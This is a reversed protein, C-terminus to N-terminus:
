KSLHLEVLDDAIKGFAEILEVSNEADIYNSPNSACEELMIKTNLDTVEFAVTYIKIDKSKIETCLEETYLNALDTDSWGHYPNTTTQSETSITNDGDTMLVLAKVGLETSIETYSKAESFPAIDSLLRYGWILGSPIYTNSRTVMADIATEITSVTDTLPTIVTPCDPGYPPAWNLLGRVPSAHYDRDEINLPYARSGVCGQWTLDQTEDSCDNVTSVGEPCVWKTCEYPGNEYSDCTTTELFCGLAESAPEDVYCVTKIETDDAPVDLWSSGGSSTGINVYSDFPVLGVKINPNGDIMIADTLTKAATKLDEIKTGAMSGTNDLVLVLELAAPPAVKVESKVGVDLADIGIVTMLITDVTGTATVTYAGGAGSQLTFEDLNLLTNSNALFIKKAIAELEEDSKSKDLSKARAAALLGADAAQELETRISTTHSMDVAFGAIMMLPIALIGFMMAFNGSADTTFNKLM